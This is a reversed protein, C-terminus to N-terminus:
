VASMPEAVIKERCWRGAFQWFLTAERPAEAPPRLLKLWSEFLAGALPFCGYNPVHALSDAFTDATLAGIGHKIAHFHLAVFSDDSIDVLRLGHRRLEAYIPGTLQPSYAEPIIALERGSLEAMDLPVSPDAKWALPMFVASRQQRLKVAGTPDIDNPLPDVMMALDMAGTRQAEALQNLSLLHIRLTVQPYKRQFARILEDREVVGSTAAPCGLRLEVESPAAISRVTRVHRDAAEVFRQAAVLWVEGQLTLALQRRSRDFLEFGLEAEHARIRTSLWPQAINLAEAARSMSRLEAVKLCQRITKVDTIAM